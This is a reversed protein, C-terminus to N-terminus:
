NRPGLRHSGSRQHRQRRRSRGLGRWLELAAKEAYTDLHGSVTVVGAKVSVGVHSANISPEWELEDGIDKKLQADTKM